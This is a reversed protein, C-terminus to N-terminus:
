PQMQSVRLRLFAKPGSTVPLTFRRQLGSAENPVPQWHVFDNTWEATYNLDTISAPIAFDMSLGAANLAAQPLAISPNAATPNLGFGYEVLNAIGDGDADGEPQSALSPHSSEFGTPSRPVVTLAPSYGMFRTGIQPRVRLLYSSGPVLTGGALQSDLRFSTGAQTVATGTSLRRVASVTIDDLYCGHNLDPGDFSLTGPRLIFRIRIPHGAWAALSISRQIWGSDWGTSNYSGGASYTYAGNRGYIESWRNGGDTSIEASLRNM